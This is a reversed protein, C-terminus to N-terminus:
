NCHVDCDQNNNKMKVVAMCGAADCLKAAKTADKLSCGPVDFVQGPTVCSSTSGGVMFVGGESCEQIATPGADSAVCMMKSVAGVGGDSTSVSAVFEYFGPAEPLDVVEACNEGDCDIDVALPGMELQGTYVKGPEPKVGFQVAITQGVIAFPAPALTFYTFEPAGEHTFFTDFANDIQGEKNWKMPIELDLQDGASLSVNTLNGFGFDGVGVTSPLGDSTGDVGVSLDTTAGTIHIDFSAFSASILQGTADFDYSGPPLHVETGNAIGQVTVGISALEPADDGACGALTLALLLHLARPHMRRRDCKPLQTTSM